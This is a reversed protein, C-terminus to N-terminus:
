KMSRIRAGVAYCPGAAEIEGHDWRQGNEVRVVEVMASLEPISRAGPGIVIELLDGVDPQEAALFLLGNGSINKAIATRPSGGDGSRLAIECNVVLRPFKRNEPVHNM